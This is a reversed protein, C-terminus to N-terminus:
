WPLCGAPAPRESPLPLRKARGNAIGGLGVRYQAACFDASIGCPKEVRRHGKEAGVASPPWTLPEGHCIESHSLELRTLRERRDLGVIKPLRPIALHSITTCYGEHREGRPGTM